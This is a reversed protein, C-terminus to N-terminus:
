RRSRKRRAPKAEPESAVNAVADLENAPHVDSGDATPTDGAAELDPLDAGELEALAAKRDAARKDATAKSKAAQAAQYADYAAQDVEILDGHRVADYYDRKFKTTEAIPIAVVKELDQQFGGLWTGDKTPRVYRAAIHSGASGYRGVVRGDVAKFYRM